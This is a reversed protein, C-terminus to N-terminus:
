AAPEGAAVEPLAVARPAPPRKRARLMPKEFLLYFLYAFGVAALAALAFYLYHGGAPLHLAQIAQNVVRITVTHTLYLSYSFLGVVGLTRVVPLRSWREDHRHAAVLFVAFLAAVLFTLRSMQGM